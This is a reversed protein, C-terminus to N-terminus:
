QGKCSATGGRVRGEVGAAQAAAQQAEEEAASARRADDQERRGMREQLGSCWRSSQTDAADPSCETFCHAEPHLRNHFPTQRPHTLFSALSFASPFTGHSPKSTHLHLGMEVQRLARKSAGRGRGCDVGMTQLCPLLHDKQSTGPYAWALNPEMSDMCHLTDGVSAALARKWSCQHVSDSGLFAASAIPLPWSSPFACCPVAYIKLM